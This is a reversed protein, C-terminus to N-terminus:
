EPRTAQELSRGSTEKLFLYTFVAGLGNTVVFVAFFLVGISDVLYPTLTSIIANTIWYVAVSFAQATELAATPILESMLMKPISALGLHYSGAFFYVGATTLILPFSSSTDSNSLTGGIVVSISAVTVLSQSIILSKRRGIQDVYGLSAVTCVLFTLSVLLTLLKSTDDNAHLYEEFLTTSYFQISKIGSGQQFFQLTLAVFFPKRLGPDQLISKLTGSRQDPAGGRSASKLIPSREDVSTHLGGMSELDSEDMSEDEGDTKAGMGLSSEIDEMEQAVDACGRLRSLHKRAEVRNGHLLLYRPSEAIFILLISSLIPFVAPIVAVTLRWLTDKALYVGALQALILGLVIAIQNLVGLTGRTSSPAVEAIYIPVVTYAIGGGVGQILRASFFLAISPAVYELCCGCLFFVNALQLSFKRSLQLRALSGLLGGILFMSVFAGFEVSTM